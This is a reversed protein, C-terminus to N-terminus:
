DPQIQLLSPNVVLIHIDKSRLLRRLAFTKDTNLGIVNVLLADQVGTLRKKIEDSV